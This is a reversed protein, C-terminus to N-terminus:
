EVPIAGTNSFALALILNRAAAAENRIRERLVQDLVENRFDSLVADIDMGTGLHITCEITDGSRIDVSIRDSMRYTARQLADITVTAADFEVIQPTAGAAAAEDLDAARSTRRMLHTLRTLRMRSTDEAGAGM